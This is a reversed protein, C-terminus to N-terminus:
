STYIGNFAMLIALLALVFWKLGQAKVLAFIYVIAAFVFGQAVQSHALKALVVFGISGLSVGLLALFTSQICAGVSKGPGGIILLITMSTFTAPFKNLKDFDRLFILIFGILYALAGPFPTLQVKELTHMKKCVKTCPCPVNLHWSVFCM